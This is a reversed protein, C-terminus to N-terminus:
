GTWILILGCVVGGGLFQTPVQAPSRYIEMGEIWQLPVEDITGRWPNGDVFIGPACEDPLPVTFDVDAMTPSPDVFGAFDQREPLRALLESPKLVQTEEIGLRDFYSGIQKSKREYFGSGQLRASWRSRGTVTIEPIVFPAFTLGVTGNAIAGPGLDILMSAPEYGFMAVELRHTGPPIGTVSALGDPNTLGFLALEPFGVSAGVVPAGDTSDTDRVRLTAPQKDQALIARPVPALSLLFPLALAFRRV